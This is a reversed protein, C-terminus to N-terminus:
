RQPRAAPVRRPPRMQRRQERYASVAATNDVAFRLLQELEDISYGQLVRHLVKHLNSFIAAATEVAAPTPRVMLRRRDTPHFDRTVAGARVLRDVAATVAGATLGLARCLEGPSMGGTRDLIELARLDTRHLRLEAAVEQELLDFEADLGRLAIVIGAELPGRTPKRM